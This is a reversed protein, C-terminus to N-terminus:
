GWSAVVASELRQQRALIWPSYHAQTVRISKHGLLVSVDALEVGTLLLGVAFTDRFRHSHADPLKAERFARRLMRDWITAASRPKGRGTWFIHTDDTTRPLANLAETVIPPVPVYVPVGTKQTYVFVKNGVVASWPLTAADSIRLGTWRMVLVLAPLRAYSTPGYRGVKALTRAANLIATMESPSFPMTPAVDVRIRELEEAPNRAVYERRKCWEFFARLRSQALAKTRPAYPWSQRFAALRDLTMDSLMTYRHARAWPLLKGDLLIRYKAQVAASTNRDKLSAMFTSIADALTKGANAPDVVIQGIQGAEIWHSIVQSAAGWDTLDLGM